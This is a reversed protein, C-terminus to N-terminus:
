PAGSTAAVLSLPDVRAGNLRVSWHLHPGTVRGTAGVLGVVTAPEVTDGTKVHIESLHAFVSFLREGYDVVITNGTFYMPAAVVIEGRNAARIPTGPKGVFDVGAHPSRRQGNYYSRTGFNSTPKGDVPLIFADTWKRASVRAYAEALMASDRKIQALADTPPEVFNGPVSLRRVAFAKPLVRLTSAPAEPTGNRRIHLRYADPKTDLDIGVLARHKRQQPDFHFGIDQGLVTATIRDGTDAGEVDVRVVDGPHPTSPAFSVQLPLHGQARDAALGVCVAFVLVGAALFRRFIV